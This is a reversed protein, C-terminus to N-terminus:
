SHLNPKILVYDGSSVPQVDLEEVARAFDAYLDDTTKTISVKPM